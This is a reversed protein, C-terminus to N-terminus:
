RVRVMFRYKSITPGVQLLRVTTTHMNRAIFHLLRCELDWWQENDNRVNIVKRAEDKPFISINTKIALSVSNKVLLVSVSMNTAHQEKFIRSSVDFHAM